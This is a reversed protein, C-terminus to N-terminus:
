ARFLRKLNNIIADAEMQCDLAEEQTFIKPKYDAEVRRHKLNLIRDRIARATNINNIRDKIENTIYKHSDEDQNDQDEYSIPIAAKEALLYKMYQFVAYYSCHVSTTWGDSNKQDQSLLRAMRLNLNYKSRM